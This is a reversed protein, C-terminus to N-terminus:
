DGEQKEALSGDFEIYASNVIWEDESDNKHHEGCKCLIPVHCKIKEKVWSTLAFSEMGTEATIKLCGAKSIEARM